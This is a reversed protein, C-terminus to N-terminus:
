RHPCWQLCVTDRGALLMNLVHHVIDESDIRAFLQIITDFPAFSSLQKGDTSDALHSLFTSDESNNKRDAGAAKKKLTENVLPRLWSQVVAMSETTKDHLLEFLPWPKGIRTRQAVKM